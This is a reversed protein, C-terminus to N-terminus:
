RGFIQGLLGGLGPQQQMQQQNHQLETGLQTPSLNQQQKRRALVGMVIPALIVLLKGIQQQDLGSQQAVGQEVQTRRGGLIHGLIKGGVAGGIMDALGGGLGGGMGGGGGGAGGLMAGLGGLSNGPANGTGGMAGGGGLMGSLGDLTGHHDDLAAHLADAGGPQTTNQAMGGLLMPLAMQIASQTAAPDAGIQQSIQNIGTGGIQQQVMDLISAM